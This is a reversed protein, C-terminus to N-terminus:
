LLESDTLACKGNSDLEWWGLGKWREVMRGERSGGDRKQLEYAKLDRPHVYLLTPFFREEDWNSNRLSFASSYGSTHLHMDREFVPHNVFQFPSAFRYSLLSHHNITATANAEQPSSPGSHTRTINVPTYKAPDNRLAANLADTEDKYKGSELLSSVKDLFTSMSASAKLWLMGTGLQLLRTDPVLTAKELSIEGVIAEIDTDMQLKEMPNHFLVVTPELYLIDVGTRIAWNWLRLKNKSEEIVRTSERRAELLPDYFFKQRNAQLQFAAGEDMAWYVVNHVKLFALRCNLNNVWLMNTSRVPVFIVTNNIHHRRIAHQIRRVGADDELKRIAAESLPPEADAMESQLNDTNDLDLQWPRFQSQQVFPSRGRSYPLSDGFNVMYTAVGQAALSTKGVHDM